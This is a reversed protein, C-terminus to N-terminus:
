GGTRRCAAGPRACRCSGGTWRVAAAAVQQLAPQTRVDYLLAHTARLAAPSARTRLASPAGRVVSRVQDSGEVGSPRTGEAGEGEGGEVEMADGGAAGEGTGGMGGDGGAGAAAREMLALLVERRAGDSLRALAAQWYAVRDAPLLSPPSPPPPPAHTPAAGTPAAWSTPALPPLLAPPGRMGGSGGGFGADGGTSALPSPEISGVGNGEGGGGGGGPGGLGTLLLGPQLVWQPQAAGAGGATTAAIGADVSAPDFSTTDGGRLSALAAM